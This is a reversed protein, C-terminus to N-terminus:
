GRKTVGISYFYVIKARKDILAQIVDEAVNVGKTYVDDILLINKGKVNDSIYCTDNTIGKYPMKGEGALFSGVLSRALHTTKTDTHRIIYNTGDILNDIKDIVEKVTRKFLLQNPTYSNEAKARPVVCVTIPSIRIANLVLPLEKELVGKLQLVAQTLKYTSTNKFNNKLVNIYDPNGPNKYGTYYTHYFSEIDQKLIENSEIVFKKM